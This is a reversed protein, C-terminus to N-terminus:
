SIWGLPRQCESLNNQRSAKLSKHNIAFALNFAREIRTVSYFGGRENELSQASELNAKVAIEVFVSNDKRQKAWIIDAMRSKLEADEVLAM